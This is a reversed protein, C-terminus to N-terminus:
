RMPNRDRAAKLLEGVQFLQAESPNPIELLDAVSAQNPMATVLASGIDRSFWDGSYYDYWDSIIVRGGRGRILDYSHYSFRFGRSEYRVLPLYADFLDRAHALM